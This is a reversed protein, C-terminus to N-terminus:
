FNHDYNEHRGPIVPTGLSAWRGNALLRAQRIVGDPDPAYTWRQTHSNSVHGVFGGPHFDAKWTPDITATDRQMTITKGSPSVATVTYAHGDTGIRLTAGDGVAFTAPTYVRRAAREWATTYDGTLWARLHANDDTAPGTEGLAALLATPDDTLNGYPQQGQSGHDAGLRAAAHMKATMEARPTDQIGADCAACRGSTTDDGHIGCTRPTASTTM